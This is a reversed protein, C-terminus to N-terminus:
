LKNKIQYEQTFYELQTFHDVNNINEDTNYKINYKHIILFAITLSFALQVNKKYIISIFSLLLLKFISNDYLKNYSKNTSSYIIILISLFINIYSNDFLNM